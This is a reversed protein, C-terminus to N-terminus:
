KEEKLLKRFLKTMEQNTEEIISGREQREKITPIKVVGTEKPKLKSAAEKVVSAVSEKTISGKGLYYGLLLSVLTIIATEIV